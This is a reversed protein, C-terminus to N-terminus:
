EKWSGLITLQIADILDKYQERSHNPRKFWKNDPSPAWEMKHNKAVIRMASWWDYIREGPHVGKIEDLSMGNNAWGDFNGVEGCEPCPLQLMNCLGRLDMQSQHDYAWIVKKCSQCWVMEAM